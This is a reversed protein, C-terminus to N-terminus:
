RFVNFPDDGVELLTQGREWLQGRLLENAHLLRLEL